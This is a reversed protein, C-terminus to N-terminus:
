QLWHLDELKDENAGWERVLAIKWRGDERVCLCSYRSSLPPESGANELRVLGEDLATDRGIFRISVSQVVVKSKPHKRFLDAYAREVAARGRFIEGSNNDYYECQETYLAAIAKADGKEFATSFEQSLKPVADKDVRREQGTAAKVVAPAELPSD